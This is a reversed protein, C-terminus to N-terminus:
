RKLQEIKQSASKLDNELDLYIQNVSPAVAVKCSNIAVGCNYLFPLLPIPFVIEILFTNQFLIM